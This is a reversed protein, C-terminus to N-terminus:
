HTSPRDFSQHPQLAHQSRGRQFSSAPKAHEGEPSNGPTQLVYWHQATLAILLSGAIGRLPQQVATLGSFEALGKRLGAGM